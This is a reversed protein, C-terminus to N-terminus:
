CLVPKKSKSKAVLNSQAKNKPNGDKHHVDKGDGKKVKGAKVAKRRSLVRASRRARQEPSGHYRDYEKRYNRGKPKKATKSAAM